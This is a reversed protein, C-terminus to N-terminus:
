GRQEGPARRLASQHERLEGKLAARQARSLVTARQLTLLMELIDQRSGCSAIGKRFSVMTGEPAPEPPEPPEPPLEPVSQAPVQQPSQAQQERQAEPVDDPDDEAILLMGQLAYKLAYSCASGYTQPLDLVKGDRTTVFAVRCYAEGEISSGDPAILRLRCTVGVGGETPAREYTVHPTIGVQICADRAAACVVDVSRHRYNVGETKRKEVGGVAALLKPFLSYIENSM